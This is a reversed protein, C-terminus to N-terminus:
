IRFQKDIYKDLRERVIHIKNGIWIAFPCGAQNSLERLKTRGIGSYAAAEEITLWKREWIPEEANSNTIEYGYTSVYIVSDSDASKIQAVFNQLPNIDEEDLCFSNYDKSKKDFYNDFGMLVDDNLDFKRSNFVIELIGM